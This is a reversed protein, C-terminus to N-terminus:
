SAQKAVEKQFVGQLYVEPCSRLLNAEAESGVDRIQVWIRRGTQLSITEQFAKITSRPSAGFVSFPLTVTELGIAHKAVEQVMSHKTLEVGDLMLHPMQITRESITRFEPDSAPPFDLVEIVIADLKSQNASIDILPLMRAQIALIPTPADEEGARSKARDLRSLILGQAFSRQSDTPQQPWPIDNPFSLRVFRRHRDSARLVDEETFEDDEFAITMLQNILGMFEETSLDDETEEPQAPKVSTVGLFEKISNVKEDEGMDTNHLDVSISTTKIDSGLAKDLRKKVANPEFETGHVVSVANVGTRFSCGKGQSHISMVKAMEEAAKEVRKGTKAGNQDAVSFHSFTLQDYNDRRIEYEMGVIVDSLDHTGEDDKFLDMPDDPDVVTCTIRTFLHKTGERFARMEGHVPVSHGESALLELDTSLSGGDCTLAFLAESVILYDDSSILKHFDMGNVREPSRGLARMIHGENRIVKASENVELVFELEEDIM